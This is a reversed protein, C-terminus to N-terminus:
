GLAKELFERSPPQWIFHEPNARTEAALQANLICDRSKEMNRLMFISLNVSFVDPHLPQMLFGKAM